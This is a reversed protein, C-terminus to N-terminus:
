AAALRLNGQYTAYFFFTGSTSGVPTALLKGTADMTFTFSTHNASGGALVGQESIKTISVGLPHKSVHFVWSSLNTSETDQFKAELLLLGSFTNTGSRFSTMSFIPTNAATVAVQAKSYSVGTDNSVRVTTISSGKRNHYIGGTTDNGSEIVTDTSTSAVNVGYHTFTNLAPTGFYTGTAPDYEMVNNKIVITGGGTSLVDVANGSFRSIVNDTITGNPTNTGTLKIAAYPGKQGPWAVQNNSVVFHKAMDLHISEEGSEFLNNGKINIWDSQGIYINQKKNSRDPESANYSPFFFVNDSIVVGDISKIWIHQIYAVNVTNHLFKSDSSAMWSAVDARDVYWAYNVSIFENNIIKIQATDHVIADALPAHYIAKDSNIFKCERITGRRTKLLEIGTQGATKATAYEFTLGDITWFQDERTGTTGIVLKGGFITGPGRLTVHKKNLTVATVKHKRPFMITSHEPVSNLLAQISATDDSVGDGVAGYDMVNFVLEDKRVTAKGGVALPSYNAGGVGLITANLATKTATASGNIAAAIATDAPAGVLAAASEAAAQAVEADAVAGALASAAEAAASAGATSAAAEADQAATRAAVAEAKMGEYSTMFGTFGGGAWAVRDLTEHMFASGFGNANVMIPNSLPGGSPDTIVLPTQTPDGPEFITIAANTAVNSPNAPDAALLQEFTYAM